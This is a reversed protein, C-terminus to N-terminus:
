GFPLIMILGTLAAISVITAVAVRVSHDKAYEREFSHLRELSHFRM